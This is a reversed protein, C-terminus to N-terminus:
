ISTSVNEQFNTASKTALLWSADQQLDAQEAQDQLTPGQQLSKSRNRKKKKIKVKINMKTKMMLQRSKFM